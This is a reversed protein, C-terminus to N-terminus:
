CRVLLGTVVMTVNPGSVTQLVRLRTLTLPLTLPLTLALTPTLTRYLTRYLTRTLTLTLTLHLRTDDEADESMFAQLIRRFKRRSRANQTYGDGAWPSLISSPRPCLVDPRTAVFQVDGWLLLM